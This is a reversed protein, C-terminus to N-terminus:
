LKQTVVWGKYAGYLTQVGALRINRGGVGGQGMTRLKKPSM